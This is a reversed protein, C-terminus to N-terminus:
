WTAWGLVGVDWKAGADPFCPDMQLSMLPLLFPVPILLRDFSNPRRRLKAAKERVADAGGTWDGFPDFACTGFKEDVLRLYRWVSLDRMCVEDAVDTQLFFFSV